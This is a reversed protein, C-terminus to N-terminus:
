DSYYGMLGFECAKIIYSQLEANVQNLDTFAECKDNRATKEDNQASRLPRSSDVPQEAETQIAKDGEAGRLSSDNYLSSNIYSVVIKAMEARTITDSMRAQELTPM